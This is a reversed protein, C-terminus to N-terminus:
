SKDGEKIADILEVRLLEMENLEHKIFAKEIAPSTLALSVAKFLLNITKPHLDKIQYYTQSM